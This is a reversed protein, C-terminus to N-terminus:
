DSKKGGQVLEGSQKGHPKFNAMVNKTEQGAKKERQWEKSIEMKKKTQERGSTKSQEMFAVEEQM